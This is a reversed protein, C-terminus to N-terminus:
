REKRENIRPPDLIKNKGKGKKMNTFSQLGSASPTDVESDSNSDHTCKQLLKEM